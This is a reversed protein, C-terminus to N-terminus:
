LKRVIRSLAISRERLAQKSSSVCALLGTHKILWMCKIVSNIYNKGQITCLM